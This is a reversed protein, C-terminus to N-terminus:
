GRSQRQFTRGVNKSQAAKAKSQAAKDDPQPLTSQAAVTLSFAAVGAASVLKFM